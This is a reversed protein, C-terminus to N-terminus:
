EETLAQRIAPVIRALYEGRAGLRERAGQIADFSNEVHWGQV